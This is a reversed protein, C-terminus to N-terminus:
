VEKELLAEYDAMNFEIINDKNIISQLFLSNGTNTFAVAADVRSTIKEELFKKEKGMSVLLYLSKGIVDVERTMRGEFQVMKQPNPDITYLITNNCNNFDLGRQVNTILVDYMGSQFGNIIRAREKPNSEGNVIEVSYGAEELLLRIGAQNDKFRCYVLAKDKAVDLTSLLWILAAVKPATFPTFPINRNVGTPYDNVMQYLTTKRMLEKQEPSQPVLIRKYINDEYVAGIDTRMRAICRLSIMEKFEGENKYGDVDYGFLGPKLRCYRSRFTERTPLFIDDLLDLQNYFEMAETELPTANLVIKRKHFKFLAKANKFVDSSTNKLLASEDVVILDFPNKASHVLFDASNLLSHSGVISYRSGNEYSEIYKKVVGEEGSPLMGVFEGTFQVMKKRIQDISSKETLFCFRFCEKRQKYESKLLNALGAIQVTKGLGVEDGLLASGAYYLFAVGITQVDRLEGRVLKLEYDPVYGLVSKHEKEYTEHGDIIDKISHSPLNTIVHRLSDISETEYLLRYLADASEDSLSGQLYKGKYWNEGKSM